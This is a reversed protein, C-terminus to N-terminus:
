VPNGTTSPGSSVGSHKHDDGVNTGNHTLSGSEIKVDSAALTITGGANVTYDAAATITVKGDAMSVINGWQDTITIGATTLKVTQGGADYLVTEGIGTDKQRYAPHTASLVQAGDRTGGISLMVVDGGPPCVATLGFPQWNQVKDMEEGYLGFVRQRQLGPQDDTDLLVGRSISSSM